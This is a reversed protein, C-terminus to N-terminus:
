QWGRSRERYGHSACNALPGPKHGLDNRGSPPRVAAGRDNLVHARGRRSAGRGRRLPM